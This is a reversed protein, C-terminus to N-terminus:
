RDSNGFSVDPPTPGAVFPPLTLHLRFLNTPPLTLVLDAFHTLDVDAKVAVCARYAEPSPKCAHLRGLRLSSWIHDTPRLATNM